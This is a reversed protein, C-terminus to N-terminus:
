KNDQMGYRSGIEDYVEEIRRIAKEISARAKEVEENSTKENNSGM